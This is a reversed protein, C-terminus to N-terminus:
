SVLINKNNVEIAAANKIAFDIKYIIIMLM